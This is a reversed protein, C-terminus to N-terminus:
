GLGVCITGNITDAFLEYQFLELAGFFDFM